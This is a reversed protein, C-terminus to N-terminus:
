QLIKGDRMERAHIGCIQKFASVIQDGCVQFSIPRRPIENVKCNEVCPISQKSDSGATLISMCLIITIRNSLLTTM